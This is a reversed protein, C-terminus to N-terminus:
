DNDTNGHQPDRHKVHKGKRTGRCWKTQGRLCYSSTSRKSHDYFDPRNPIAPLMLAGVVSFRQVVSLSGEGRCRCRLKNCLMVDCQKNPNKALHCFFLLPHVCKLWILFSRVPSKPICLVTNHRQTLGFPMIFTKIIIYSFMSHQLTNWEYHHKVAVKVRACNGWILWFDKAPLWNKVTLITASPDSPTDSTLICQIKFWRSGRSTKKRSVSSSGDSDANYVSAATVARGGINWVAFSSHWSQKPPTNYGDPAAADFAWFYLM